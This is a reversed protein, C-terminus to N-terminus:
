RRQRVAFLGGPKQTILGKLALTTMAATVEGAPRGSRAILEDLSLEVGALLAMLKAETPSLPVEPAAPESADEDQLVQGVVGLSDLIDDLGAVLKAASDAILQNTGASFPSDVRGPPWVM